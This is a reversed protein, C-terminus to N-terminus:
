ARIRCGRCVIALQVARLLLRERLNSLLTYTTLAAASGGLKGTIVAAATATPCILCVMAGQLAARWYEDLPLFLLLCAVLLCSLFQVLLLWGQWCQPVLEKVEVKCFTLLLQAFILFPALWAILIKVVPRTPTLFDFTAFCFYGIVGALMALPLTWNKIFQLM